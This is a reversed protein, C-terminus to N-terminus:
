ESESDFNTMDDETGYRGDRGASILLYSEPNVPTNRAKRTPDHIFRTFTNEYRPDTQIPFPEPDPGAPEARALPHYVGTGALPGKGLDLGAFGAVVGAGTDNGTILANDEQTYIGPEEQQSVMRVTGRNAKYYLVPMGWPDVFMRQDVATNALPENYILGQENMEDITTTNERMQEDVYGASYRPFKPEFTTADLQYLGREDDHTDNWWRADRAAGSGTDKFGPPGLGDAGIMAHVLLHAGSILVTQPGGEGSKRRPNAIEQPDERNDSRSPPLSGGLASEGQFARIGQDLARYMSAAQTRKARDRVTGFAPLLVAVLLAIIAVVVMMEVLSFARRATSRPSPTMM